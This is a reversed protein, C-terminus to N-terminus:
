WRVTVPAGSVRFAALTALTALAATCDRARLLAGSLCHYSDVAGPM